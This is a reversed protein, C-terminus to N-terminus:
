LGQPRNRNCLLFVWSGKLYRLDFPAERRFLYSCKSALDTHKTRHSENTFIKLEEKFEGRTMWKGIRTLFM